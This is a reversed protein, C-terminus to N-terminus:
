TKRREARTLQGKHYGCIDGRDRVVRKCGKMGCRPPSFPQYGAALRNRAFEMMEPDRNSHLEARLKRRDFDITGAWIGYEENEVAYDLCLLRVPCTGCYNEHAEVSAKLAQLNPRKKDSDPPWFLDRDQRATACAGEDQLEVPVPPADTHGPPQWAAGSM